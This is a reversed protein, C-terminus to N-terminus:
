TEKKLDKIHLSGVSSYLILLQNNLTGIYLSAGYEDFM